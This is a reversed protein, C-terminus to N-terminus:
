WSSRPRVADPNVVRIPTGDIWALLNELADRYFVRFISEAVYGLHPALVVNDLTTLPHGAPLPEVDYVDLGAAGLQHTRLAEILAAEDVIPGRSTNILIAGKKMRALEPRGLLGRTRDSLVLHITVIDATALLEDKTVLTAGGARAKDATLNQSWAVVEMDFAKAYHAMKSGLKGLGVIGLRKGALTMGMDLGGHWGGRRMLRDARTVHRAADMLLAWALESTSSPSPGTGTNCVPIGRATCAAVDLSPARAGTLIVLKLHPLRDILAKPMAQRERMLLVADFPALAAAADDISGLHRDFATIAVGRARAKDWDAYALALNQYDDLIALKVHNTVPLSRASLVSSM